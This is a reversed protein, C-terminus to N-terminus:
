HQILQRARDRSSGPLYSCHKLTVLRQEPLTVQPEHTLLFDPLLHLGVPCLDPCGILGICVVPAEGVSHSLQHLLSLQLLSALQAELLYPKWGGLWFGCTEQMRYSCGTCASVQGESSLMRWVKSIPGEELWGRIAWSKMKELNICLSLLDQWLLCDRNRQRLAICSKKSFGLPVSPGLLHLQM